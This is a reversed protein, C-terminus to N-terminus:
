RAKTHLMSWRSGDLVAYVNASTACNVDDADDLMLGDAITPDSWEARALRQELRNLHKVGALRANRALRAACFRTRVGAADWERPHAPPGYGTLIRTPQPDLPPRYGRESRGRTLILKLVGEGVDRAAARIEQELLTRDPAPFRLTACGQALRELHAALLQPQGGRIALTEFLGDGYHLGRDDLPLCQAPEGNVLAFKM